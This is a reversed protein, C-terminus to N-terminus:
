TELHSLDVILRETGMYSTHYIAKGTNEREVKMMNGQSLYKFKERCNSYATSILGSNVRSHSAGAYEIVSCAM